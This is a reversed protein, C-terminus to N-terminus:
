AAGVFRVSLGKQVIDGSADANGVNKVVTSATLNATTTTFNNFVVAGTSTTAQYHIQSVVRQNSSDVRSIFAKCYWTTANAVVSGTDAVTIGDFVLKVRKSNGNAAFTGWAEVEVGDSAAPITNASLTITKLDQDTSTGTYTTDSAIDQSYRGGPVYSATGSHTFWHKGTYNIAGTTGNPSVNGSFVIGQSAQATIDIFGTFSNGGVAGKRSGGNANMYKHDLANIEINSSPNDVTDNGFSIGNVGIFMYHLSTGSTGGRLLLKNVSSNAKIEAVNLSDPVSNQIRLIESGAGDKAIFAIDKDATITGLTTLANTTKDFVLGSDGGFAGGDNFQVQTDAGGPSGGSATQWSPIGSSVQLTQGNSGIPLRQIVNNVGTAYFLDGNALAAPDPVRNNAPTQYNAM